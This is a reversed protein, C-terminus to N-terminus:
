DLYPLQADAGTLDLVIMGADTAASREMEEELMEVAALDLEGSLRVLHRDSGAESYVRLAGQSLNRIGEGEAPM